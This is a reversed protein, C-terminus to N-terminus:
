NIKYEILRTNSNRYKAIAYRLQGVFIPIQQLHSHIGYLFLTFLDESKWRARLSSRLSLTLVLVLWFAVPAIGLRVSAVVSAAFSIIWFSGRRVNANRESSWFSDDSNRFRESIEAYAHGARLARKWYQRWSTIALDHHTMPHDVHLIKFGHARIRRCLEPEEGAILAEDYGGTELLAARRMLVDGGCFETLGAPYIWDLDLVRNFLSQEPYLERRHGWVAAISKDDSFAHCAIRPFSPHLVTDGDLFLILDSSARLWGTNRGLAATPRMSHLTISLAGYRSALEASGDTSASDVYIMERIVVDQISRDVRFM